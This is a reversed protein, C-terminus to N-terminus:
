LRFGAVTAQLRNGLEGLSDATERTARAITTTQSASEAVGRITTSIRGTERSAEDVNGALSRTTAAQEEVAAAVSEQGQSIRGIVDAIQEVAAIATATDQQISAVRGTIVDTARSTEQALEKVESAVVAFGKGAEGARAAEITANLALLNTQEAISSIVKVVEDIDRASEELQAIFATTRTTVEVAEGAVGLAEHARTAIEQVSGAMQAAAAAAGEVSQSVQEAAGTVATAQEYSRGASDDTQGAIGALRGAQASMEASATTISGVTESLQASVASVFASIISLEDGHDLAPRRTLDGARVAALDDLVRATDRRVGRAVPVLLSIAIGLGLVAVGVVILRARTTAADFAASTAAVTEGLYETIQKNTDEYTKRLGRNQELAVATAAAPDSAYLAFEADLADNWGDVQTRLTGLMERTHADATADAADLFGAVKARREIVEDVFEQNGTLLYGREDNAIAKNAVAAENVAVSTDFAATQAAAARELSGVVLVATVATICLALLLVLSPLLMKAVLSRRMSVPNSPASM